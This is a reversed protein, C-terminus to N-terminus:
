SEKHTGNSAVRRLLERAIVLRQVESTGEGITCLKSDRWAREVPYDKTYGYGGHIQIAEEATRVATESAHVKAMASELTCDKGLDKLAAARMTLLRAADVQTGMDALKHSIAQFSSIKRGFQERVTSYELSADLAGRAIGLSLAAISIRGGDLIKMAQVFGDGQDGLLYGAPVRCDELVLSSTDSCRMGLKNEKKGPEVGARDFPVFFASIGHHSGERSTRAVVVCCDGSTAHTIFTKSGNLVWENGDLVATTRTGGADSGAGPETLGWAGIWEGSALKPLFEMKLEESGFQFLHNTCLSNHAAVGLGVGGDVASIEELIVVYEVYGLGAGGYEEPMVVGLLGLEGLKSFLERPFYQREDWDGAFPAIENSAFDRVMDRISHQDQTLEFDM